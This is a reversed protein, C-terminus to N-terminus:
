FGSSLAIARVGSSGSGRCVNSGAAPRSAEGAIQNPTWTRLMTSSPSRDAKPREPTVPTSTAAWVNGIWTNGTGTSNWYAVPGYSGAQPYFDRGFTNDKFVINTPTGKSGAGGYVTYGGGALYNGQVLVNTPVGFDQFLAIASTQDHSNLFTNHILKIGNGAM